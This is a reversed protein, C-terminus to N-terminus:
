EENTTWEDKRLETRFDDASFPGWYDTGSTYTDKLRFICDPMYSDIVTTKCNWYEWLGVQCINKYQRCQIKSIRSWNRKVQGFRIKSVMSSIILYNYYM